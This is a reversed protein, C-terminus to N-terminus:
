GKQHGFQWGLFSSTGSRNDNGVTTRRAIQGFMRQFGLAQGEGHTGIEDFLIDHKAFVINGDHQVVNMQVGDRVDGRSIGIASPVVPAEEGGIKCQRFDFRQRGVLPDIPFSALRDKGTPEGNAFRCEFDGRKAFLDLQNLSQIAATATVHADIDLDFCRSPVPFLALVDATDHQLRQSRM